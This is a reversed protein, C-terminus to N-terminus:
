KQEKLADSMLPEIESWVKTLIHDQNECFQLAKDQATKLDTGNLFLKRLVQYFHEEDNVQMCANMAQMDDYIQQLNQILPGHLVACGLQAPEIPNHGGGGDDSFSRGVVAISALRYFLGLEGLTDALYIDTDDTPFDYNKSRRIVRVGTKELQTELEAGRDPHRPVIITLLNPIDKKLKQHLRAAILEESAHTSAYLWIPRDKIEASIESLLAEDYPLPKANYKINGTVEAQTAGLEAYSKQDTETQCLIKSFAGLIEEASKPFRKWSKLSEPSLRANLLIAPINKKKLTSLINPWLESEMWIALNPKWHSFFAEVWQPHDLPLFQHFAQEPLRKSLMEASGLTGTTVLINIHPYTAVIKEIFILASQAEGVSAAHLWVLSGLPREKSIVGKKEQWREQHEKGKALRRKLLLGLPLAAHNTLTRYIPLIM